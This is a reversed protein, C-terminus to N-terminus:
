EGPPIPYLLDTVSKLLEDRTFPKNLISTHIDEDVPGFEGRYLPDGTTIIIPISMDMKRIIKIMDPGCLVPMQLDTIILDFSCKKFMNLASLGDNAYILNLKLPVLMKLMLQALSKDDEVILVTKVMILRGEIM